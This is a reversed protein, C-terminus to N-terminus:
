YLDTDFDGEKLFWKKEDYLKERVTEDAVHLFFSPMQDRLIFGLRFLVEGCTECCTHVSVTAVGNANLQSVTEQLLISQYDNCSDDEVYFWEFIVAEPQRGKESAYFGCISIGVLSDDSYLGIMDFNCRPNNKYRWNLYRSSIDVYIQDQRCSSFQSIDEPIESLL